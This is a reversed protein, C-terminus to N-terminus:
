TKKKKKEGTDIIELMRKWFYYNKRRQMQDGQVNLLEIGATESMQTNNAIRVAWTTKNSQQSEERDTHLVTDTYHAGRGGANCDVTVCSCLIRMIRSM